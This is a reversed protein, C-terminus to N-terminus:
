ARERKRKVEKLTFLFISLHIEETNTLTYDLIDLIYGQLGFHPLAFAGFYITKFDSFECVIFVM